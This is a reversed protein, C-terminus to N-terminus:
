LISKRKSLKSYMRGIPSAVTSAVGLGGGERLEIEELPTEGAGGTSERVKGRRGGVPEEGAMFLHEGEMGVCWAVRYEEGQPGGGCSGALLESPPSNVALTFLNPPESFDTVLGRNFALYLLVLLNTFFVLALVIIFARQYPQTGGSAFQQARITANFYQIRPTDLINNIPASYNWFTVFPTDQASMLLTCGALVSLAEAISPLNPSLQATKLMLQTLLRANSANGNFAGANLSLANGWESAIYPWDLSVPTSANWLSKIYRMDDLPDECNANLSAGSATASFTTSCNATYSTKLQCLAYESGHTDAFNLPGKALVYVSERGYLFGSNNLITNFEIPLTSFVPPHQSLEPTEANKKWGFIDDVVTKNKFDSFKTWNFEATWNSTVEAQTLNAMLQYVLPTLETKNMNACLVHVVPSPVSARLSYVGLGDLEQPQLIGNDPNRAASSVGAHPMALSVNNIIRGAATSIETVDVQQIFSAEVTTNENFLGFGKPREALVSSGNGSSAIENWNSLYKAYNKFAQGAHEIQLCTTGGVDVEGMMDRRIPTSCEQAVFNANAFSSRVNGQMFRTEWPGFKLQPQVLADAATTYLMALVAAMLSAVGLITLAAYKLSEYHTIMTGPQMIWNRMSMEALTVGGSRKSFARRSLVQGLFAVFVTVYSLEILKAFLQTLVSATSSTLRGNTHITKGYRPGVCAIIFYIGSFVTSFVALVLISIALWNARGQFFHKRTPCGEGPHFHPEYASKVSPTTKTSQPTNQPYPYQQNFSSHLSSVSRKAYGAIDEASNDIRGGPGDYATNNSGFSTNVANPSAFPETAPTTGTSSQRSHTGIPRRPISQVSVRRTRNPSTSTASAIGLGDSERRRLTDAIDEDEHEQITTYNQEDASSTLRHYTPRNRAGGRPSPPTFTSSPPTPIFPEPPDYSFSQDNILRRRDSDAM